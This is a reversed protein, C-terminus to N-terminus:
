FKYGLKMSLTFYHPHFSRSGYEYRKDDIEAEFGNYRYEIGVLIGKETAMEIGGGIYYALNTGSTHQHINEVDMSAQYKTVGVGFPIYLRVNDDPNINVRSALMFNNARARVKYNVKVCNLGACFHQMTNAQNFHALNVEVGLGFYKNPFMFFQAGYAMGGDAWKIGGLKNAGHVAGVSLFGAYDGAEIPQAPVGHAGIWLPLWCLGLAAIIKKLM